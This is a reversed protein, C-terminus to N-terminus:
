LVPQMLCSSFMQRLWSSAIYSPHAGEGESAMADATTIVPSPPAQATIATPFSPVQPTHLAAVLDILAEFIHQLVAQGLRALQPESGM